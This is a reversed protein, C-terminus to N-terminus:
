RTARRSALCGVGAFGLIALLVSAPEPVPGVTLMTYGALEGQHIYRLTYDRNQVAETIPAWTTTAQDWYRIDDNGVISSLFHEISADAKGFVALRGYESMNLQSGVTQPLGISLVGGVSVLGHNTITLQADGVLGLTFQDAVNWRSGPDGVYVDSVSGAFIGMGANDCNVIGGDYISLSGEGDLAVTFRTGANWTSGEGSVSAKGKSGAHLGVVSAECAVLGGETIILNGNGDRGVTLSEELMWSSGSQEVQVVGSANAHYGIEGNGSPLSDGNTIHLQGSSTRGVFSQTSEQWISLDAPTVDGTAILEASLPASLACCSCLLFLIWCSSWDRSIAATHNM